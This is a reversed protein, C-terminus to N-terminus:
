PDQLFIIPLHTSNHLRYRVALNWLIRAIEQNASSSAAEWSLSHEMSQTLPQWRMFILLVNKLFTVGHVNSLVHGNSSRVTDCNLICYYHQKLLLGSQTVHRLTKLPPLPSRSTYFARSIHCHM